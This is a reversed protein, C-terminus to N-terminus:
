ANDNKSVSLYARQADERSKYHLGVRHRDEGDSSLTAAQLTSTIPDPWRLAARLAETTERHCLDFVQTDGTRHLNDMAELAQEAAQRLNSM